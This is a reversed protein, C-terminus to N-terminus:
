GSKPASRHARRWAAPTTGFALKFAAHLRRVDHFGSEDAVAHITRDTALLMRRAHEIRARRIHYKIPAHVHREFADYLSRESLATASVVDGVHIDERYHAWIYSLAKAVEPHEVALIDTSQRTVVGKPEVIIPDSPLPQGDLHADLMAAAQYGTGELDIDISSLPPASSECVPVMNDVGLVAVDEPVRLGAALAAQIAETGQMDELTFLALPHPLRKLQRQLRAFRKEWPLSSSVTIAHCDKVGRQELAQSYAETRRHPASWLWAYHQFGRGIFYDAALQAIRTHNCVIDQSLVVRPQDLTDLFRRLPAASAGIPQGMIIGDGRWGLQFARSLTISADLHWGRERAYRVIGKHLDPYYFTLALLINRPRKV